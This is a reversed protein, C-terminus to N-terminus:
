AAEDSPEGPPEDDEVADVITIKIPERPLMPADDFRVGALKLSLEELKAYGHFDAEAVAKAIMGEIRLRANNRYEERKEPGIRVIRSAECADNEVTHWHLGWETALERPTIGTFYRGEQMLRVLREIREDKPPATRPKRERKPM